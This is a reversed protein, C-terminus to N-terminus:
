DEIQQELEDLLAECSRKVVQFVNEFGQMGGYYPDPVAGDGPQPDFDRMLAIKENFRNKRDLSKVNGLNDHDMALILDYYELDPYEFKRSKSHLQVGHKNAIQQSKSNASEGGHFASTGASDIEFYAQYGRENVIHQFVGEATPSRCINGLCVFVIKFPNEKSIKKQLAQEM